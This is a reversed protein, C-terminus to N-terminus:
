GCAPSEASVYPDDVIVDNGYGRGILIPGGDFTQYRVHLGSPDAIEVIVRAM